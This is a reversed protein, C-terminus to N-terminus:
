NAPPAEAKPAEKVISAEAVAEFKADLDKEDVPEQESKSVMGLEVKFEKGIAKPAASADYIFTYVPLDSLHGGSSHASFMPNGGGGISSGGVGSDGGGPGGGSSAGPSSMVNRVSRGGTDAGEGQGTTISSPPGFVIVVKGRLTESGPTGNASFYKDAEDIRKKLTKQFDPGRRDLYGQIFKEAQENTEVNKWAEKEANTLFYAEPSKPWKKYKKSLGGAFAATSLLTILAAVAIRSKM